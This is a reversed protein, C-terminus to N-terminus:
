RRTPLEVLRLTPAAAGTGNQSGTVLVLYIKGAGLTFSQFADAGGTAPILVGETGNQRVQFNQAGADVTFSRVSGYAIGTQNTQPLTGPNRFDIQPPDGAGGLYGDVVFLRAVNGNPPTRDITDFALRLRQIPDAYGKLGVALVLSDRDSPFTHAVDDAPVAEGEARLSVDYDRASISDFGTSAGFPVADGKLDDNLFFDASGSDTSLNVYVTRAKSDSGNDGGGGGGGGCGVLALAGLVGFILKKM